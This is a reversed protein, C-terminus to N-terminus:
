EGGIQEGSAKRPMLVLGPPVLLEFLAFFGRLGPPFSPPFSIFVFFFFFPSVFMREGTSDSTEEGGIIVDGKWCDGGTM